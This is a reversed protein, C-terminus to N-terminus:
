SKGLFAVNTELSNNKFLAWCVQRSKFVGLLDEHVQKLIILLSSNGAIGNPTPDVSGRV